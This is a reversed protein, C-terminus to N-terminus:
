IERSDVLNRVLDFFVKHILRWDNVQNGFDPVNWKRMLHGIWNRQTFGEAFSHNQAHAIICMPLIVDGFRCSESMDHAKQGPPIVAPLFCFGCHGRPKEEGQPTYARCKVAFHGTQFCRRCLGRIECSHGNGNLVVQGHKVTCWLCADKMYSVYQSLRLTFDKEANASANVALIERSFNIPLFTKVSPFEVGSSCIDCRQFSQDYCCGVEMGDLYRGLARRRCQGNIGFQLCEMLSKAKSIDTTRQIAVHEANSDFVLTCVAKAGDRGARGFMQVLESMNFPLTYVFVHRVHKYDIGAGFSTTAVMVAKETSFWGDIEDDRNDVDRHCIFTPIELAKLTIWVQRVTEVERCYVIIRDTSTLNIHASKVQMEITSHNNKVEYVHNARFSPMRVVTCTHQDMFFLKRLTDTQSPNLTASLLCFPVNLLRLQFLERYPQRYSSDLLACHCEDIFIRGLNGSGKLSRLRSQAAPTMVAEPTLFVLGAEDLMQVSEHARLGMDMSRKVLDRRLAVNPVIVLVTKSAHVHAYIQFLISKGLGTPLIAILHEEGFLSLEVASRQEFSRFEFSDGFLEIGASLARAEQAVTRVRLPRASQPDNVEQCFEAPILNPASISDSITTPPSPTIASDEHGITGQLFGHWNVSSQRYAELALHSIPGDLNSRAYVRESTAPTHGFQSCGSFEEVDDEVGLRLTKIIKKASQRFGRFTLPRGCSSMYLRKFTAAAADAEMRRYKGVFLYNAYDSLSENHGHQQLLFRVFPRVVLIERLVLESDSPSVFRAIRNMRGTKSNNKNHHPVFFVRSGDFFLSRQVAGNNLITYSCLETGRAPGGSSIHILALLCRVFQDHVRHYDKPDALVYECQRGYCEHILAMNLHGEISPDDLGLGVGPRRNSMGKSVAQVPVEILRGFCLKRQLDVCQQRIATYAMRVQQWTVECDNYMFSDVTTGETISPNAPTRRSISKALNNCRRLEVFASGSRNRFLWSVKKVAQLRQRGVPVGIVVLVAALNLLYMLKSTLGHIEHASLLSRDERTFRYRLYDEVVLRDETDTTTQELAAKLLDCLSEGLEDEGVLPSVCAVHPHRLSVFRVFNAWVTAYRDLSMHSLRRIPYKSFLTRIGYSVRFVKATLRMLGHKLVAESDPDRDLRESQLLSDVDGGLYRQYFLDVNRGDRYQDIHVGAPKLSQRFRKLLDDPVKPAPVINGIYPIFRKPGVQQILGRSRTSQHGTRHCHSAFSSSNTTAYECGVSLCRFGKVIGAAPGYEALEDAVPAPAAVTLAVDQEAQVEQVPQVLAATPTDQAGVQKCQSCGSVHRRISQERAYHSAGCPTKFGDDERDIRVQTNNLSLYFFNVHVRKHEKLQKFTDFNAGCGIFACSYM